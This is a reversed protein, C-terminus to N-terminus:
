HVRSAGYVWLNSESEGASCRRIFAWLGLSLPLLARPRSPFCGVRAPYPMFSCAPLQDHPSHIPGQIVIAALLESRSMDWLVREDWKLWLLPESTRQGM